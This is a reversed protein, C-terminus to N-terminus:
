LLIVHVWWPVGHVDLILSEPIVVNHVSHDALDAKAAEDLLGYVVLVDDETGCVRSM